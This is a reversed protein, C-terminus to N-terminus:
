RGMAIMRDLSIHRSKQHRVGHMDMWTILFRKFSM